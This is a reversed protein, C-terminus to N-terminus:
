QVFITALSVKEVAESKGKAVLTYKVSTKSIFNDQFQLNITKYGGAKKMTYYYSYPIVQEGDRLINFEVVVDSTSSQCVVSSTIYPNNFTGSISVLDSFSDELDVISSEYNSVVNKQSSSSLNGSPGQPGIFGQYGQMGMAGLFGRPGEVGQPGQVGDDGDCGDEGSLGQPGQFGRQPIGNSQTLPRSNMIGFNPMNQTTSPTAM